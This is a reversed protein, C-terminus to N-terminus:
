SNRSDFIIKSSIQFFNSSLTKEKALKLGKLRSEWHLVLIWPYSMTRAPRKQNVISIWQNSLLDERSKEVLM